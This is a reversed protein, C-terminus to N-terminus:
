YIHPKVMNALIIEIQQSQSGGLAKELWGKLFQLGGVGATRVGGKSLRKEMASAVM